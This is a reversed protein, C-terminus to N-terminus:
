LEAKNSRPYSLQRPFLESFCHPEHMFGNLAQCLHQGIKLNIAKKQDYQTLTTLLQVTFDYIKQLM